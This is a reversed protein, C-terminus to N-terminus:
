TSTFARLGDCRARASRPYYVPKDYFHIGAPVPCPCKNLFGMDDMASHGKGSHWAFILLPRRDVLQLGLATASQERSM